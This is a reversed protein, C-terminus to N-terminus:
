TLEAPHGPVGSHVQGHQRRAAEAIAESLPRTASERMVPEPDIWVVKTAGGHGHVREVLEASRYLATSSLENRWTMRVWGSPLETREGDPWLIELAKGFAIGDAVVGTGSVGSVDDDRQLFFRRMPIM